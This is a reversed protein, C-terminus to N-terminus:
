TRKSGNTDGRELDEELMIKDGNYWVTLAKEKFYGNERNQRIKEKNELICFPKKQENKRRLLGM